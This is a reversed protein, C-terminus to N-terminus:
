FRRKFYALNIIIVNESEQNFLIKKKRILNEYEIDCKGGEYIQNGKKDENNKNKRDERRQKLKGLEETISGKKFQKKM